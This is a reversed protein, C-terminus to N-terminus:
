AEVDDDDADEAIEDNEVMFERSSVRNARRAEEILDSLQNKVNESNKINKIEFNKMTKDVSNCKITGLGFIRQILTRSLSLDLVRYLRIEDQNQTFFGTKIILKSQSLEYKTFTWPLGCWVRKRDQWVITQEM